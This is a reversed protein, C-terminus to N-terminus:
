RTSKRDAFLILDDDIERGHYECSQSRKRYRSGGQKFRGDIRRQREHEENSKKLYRYGVKSPRERPEPEECDEEERVKDDDRADDGDEDIEERHIRHEPQADKKDQKRWADVIDHREGM